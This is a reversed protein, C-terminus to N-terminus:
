ISETLQQSKIILNRGTLTMLRLYPHSSKTDPAKPFKSCIIRGLFKGDINNKLHGISNILQKIAKPVDSGKLEIFYGDTKGNNTATFLYDCKEEDKLNTLLCDDVIHKSINKKGPNELVYSTKDGFVSFVTHVSNIVCGEKCKCVHSELKM